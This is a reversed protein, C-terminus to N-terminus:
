VDNSHSDIDGEEKILRKGETRPRDYLSEIGKWGYEKDIITEKSDKGCGTRHGM